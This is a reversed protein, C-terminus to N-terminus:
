GAGGCWSGRPPLCQVEGVELGARLQLEAGRACLHAEFIEYGKAEALGSSLGACPLHDGGGPYWGCVDQGSGRQM